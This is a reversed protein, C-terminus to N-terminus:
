EYGIRRLSTAGDNTLIGYFVANSYEVTSKKYTHYIM